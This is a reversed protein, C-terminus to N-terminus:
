NHWIIATHEGNEHPTCLRYNWREDKIVTFQPEYELSILRDYHGRPRFCSSDESERVGPDRTRIGSLDHIDTYANIRHKYQGTHLYRGQSPSIM